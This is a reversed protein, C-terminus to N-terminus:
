LQQQSPLQVSKWILGGLAGGSAGAIVLPVLSHDTIGLAYGGLGSLIGATVGFALGRTVRSSGSWSALEAAPLATAGILAYALGLDLSIGSGLFGMVVAVVCGGVAGAFCYRLLLLFQPRTLLM